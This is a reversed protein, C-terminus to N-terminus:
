GSRTHTKPATETKDCGSVKGVSSCAKGFASNSPQVVAPSIPEDPTESPPMTIVATFNALGPNRSATVSRTPM